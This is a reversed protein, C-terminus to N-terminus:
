GIRIIFTANRSAVHGRPQVCEGTGVFMVRHKKGDAAQVQHVIIRTFKAGRRVLLPKHGIPLVSQDM